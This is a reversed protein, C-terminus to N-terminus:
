SPKRSSALLQAERRRYVWEGLAAVTAWVACVAWLIVLAKRREESVLHPVAVCIALAGGLVALVHVLCSRVDRIRQSALHATLIARVCEGSVQERPPVTFNILNSMACRKGSRTGPLKTKEIRNKDVTLARSDRGARRSCGPGSGLSARWGCVM